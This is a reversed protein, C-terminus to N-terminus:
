VKNDNDRPVADLLLNYSFLLFTTRFLHILIIGDCLEECVVIIQFNAPKRTLSM